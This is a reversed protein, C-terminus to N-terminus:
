STLSSEIVSPLSSGAEWSEEESREELIVILAFPDAIVPLLSPFQIGAGTDRYPLPFPLIFHFRECHRHLAFTVISNLLRLHWFFYFDIGCRGSWPARFDLLPKVLVFYLVLIEINGFVFGCALLHNVLAM